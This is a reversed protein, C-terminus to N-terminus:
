EEPIFSEESFDRPTRPKYVLYALGVSIFYLIILPGMVVAMNVPDVTPTIAAAVIAIVVVAQRWFGLLARGTLIGTRALFVIVLPTEFAVGIWFIIRTIFSIYNEASWNPTITASLFSQLFGIAVPMMVFYAFAIGALFLLFIGPLSFLLARKEHPYLGPAAFAILQYVIIPMAVAAGMTLSVKFFITMNELPKLYILEGGNAIVPAAIFDIVAKDFIWVISMATATCIFLSSVIWILRTRLELLHDMLTMSSEEMPDFGPDYGPDYTQVQTTM